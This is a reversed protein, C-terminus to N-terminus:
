PIHGGIGALRKELQIWVPERIFGLKCYVTQMAINEIASSTQMQPHEKARAVRIAQVYSATAIGRGRESQAVGALGAYVPRGKAASGVECFGVIRDGCLAVTSIEFDRQSGEGM